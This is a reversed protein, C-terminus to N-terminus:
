EVKEDNNKIGLISALGSTIEEPKGSAILKTARDKEGQDLKGKEKEYVEIIARADAAHKEKIAKVHAAHRKDNEVHADLIDKDGRSLIGDVKESRGHRSFFLVAFIGAIISVLSMVWHLPKKLWAVITAGISAKEKDVMVGPWYQMM